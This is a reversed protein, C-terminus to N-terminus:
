EEDSEVAGGAPPWVQAQASKEPLSLSARLKQLGLRIRKKVTGLPWGLRRAISSQSLGGFYALVLAQRQEAPLSKLAFVLRRQRERQWIAEGLDASADPAQALYQEFHDAQLILREQGREKLEDLLYNRAVAMFWSKFSGRGADFQGARRWLRLFIEQVSEEADVYGLMYGALTYLTHAYRDYLLSFASVDRRAVQAALWEDSPEPPPVAGDPAISKM